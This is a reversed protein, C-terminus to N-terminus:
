PTLGVIIEVYDIQAKGADWQREFEAKFAQAMEIPGKYLAHALHTTSVYVWYTGTKGDQSVEFKRESLAPIRM